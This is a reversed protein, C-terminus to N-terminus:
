YEIKLIKEIDHNEYATWDSIKNLFANIAMRDSLENGLEGIHGKVKEIKVLHQIEKYLFFCEKVLEINEAVEGDSKRWDNKEWSFAWQTIANISYQSDTYITSPRNIEKIKNLCFLVGDLEGVNNSGKEKFSGTYLKKLVGDKYIVVGSSSPGPNAQCAGDCFFNIGANLHLNRVVHKKATKKKKPKSLSQSAEYGSKFESEASSRDKANLKKYIAGKFGKIQEQCEAWTEFIGVNHGKWVGYFKM